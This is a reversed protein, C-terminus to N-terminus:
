RAQDCLTRLVRADEIAAGGPDNNFFVFAPELGAIRESWTRLARRGYRPRPQARGEHLRVYGWETTRWLPTVARGLRDAWCLAADRKELAARVGDTWWSRHRPEVAVRVGAPMARLVGDLVEIDARMTPALQILVPGLRDGLPELRDFFRAIPEQPDKLRRIHTLYRSMKAAMLFGDPTQARWQEAATRQPLRYFSSNVEVVPFERAYYALWERQPVGAPYFRGRWHAYQWGSTGILAV